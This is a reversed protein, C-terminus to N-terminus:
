ACQCSEQEVELDLLAAAIVIQGAALGGDNPPIQGHTLVERSKLRLKAVIMETFVRNQFCGGSLVVKYGVFREVVSEVMDAIAQHFSQSLAPASRGIRLGTVTERVVARWDVCLLGDREDHVFNIRASDEGPTSEACASELRM